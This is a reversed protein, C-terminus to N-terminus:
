DRAGLGNVDYGWRALAFDYDAAPEPTGEQGDITRAMRIAENALQTARDTYSSKNTIVQALRVALSKSLADIFLADFKDTTVNAIYVVPLPAEQNTLIKGAEIVHELLYGGQASKYQLPLLRLCDSPLTYAYSWGSVPAVSDAALSARKIAFNWPHSRLLADRTLPYHLRCLRGVKGTDDVYSTLMAEDLMGLALNCIDTESYAM